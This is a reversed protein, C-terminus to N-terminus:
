SIGAVEATLLVHFRKLIMLMTLIFHGILYFGPVLLWQKDFLFVLIFLMVLSITVLIEYSINKSIELLLTRRQTIKARQIQGDVTAADADPFVDSVRTVILAQLNLLLATLVAFAEVLLSSLDRVKELPLVLPLPACAIPLFYFVLVDVRSIANTGADHLTALHDSFILRPSVKSTM